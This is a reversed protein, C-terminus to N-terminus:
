GSNIRADRRRERLGLAASAPPWLAFSLSPDLGVVRRCVLILAFAMIVTSISWAIAAGVLGLSPALAIILIARVLLVSAMIRPYIGEHGTLLLVHTAPGVLAGISAGVALIILAPYVSMYVSGFFWLLLKGAVIIAVLATANLVASIIALMRLMKQLELKADSYFLASIQSTAYISVSGTIMAFVNTIRTAVFYFGAAVPGLVFGILIVELYQSTNDLLASAWMKVSRPIWVGSDSQANELRIAPPISRAVLAAQFVIAVFIAAAASLFFDHADLANSLLHCTGIAGVVLFRWMLERPVEGIIVGAAVRSFQGTFQM